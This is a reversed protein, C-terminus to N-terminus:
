LGSDYISIIMQLPFVAFLDEKTNFGEITWFSVEEGTEEIYVSKKEKYAELGFCDLIALVRKQEVENTIEKIEDNLSMTIERWSIKSGKKNQDIIINNSM